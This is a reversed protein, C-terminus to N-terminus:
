AERYPLMRWAQKLMEMILAAQKFDGQKCMPMILVPKAGYGTKDNQSFAAVFVEKGVHVTGKCIAKSVARVVALNTGMKFSPLSSAHECLGVINDTKLLYCLCGDCAMKDMSLTISSLEPCTETKFTAEINDLLNTM